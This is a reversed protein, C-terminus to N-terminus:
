VRENPVGRLEELTRTLLKYTADTRKGTVAAIEPVTLGAAFRLALLDRKQDSLGDM